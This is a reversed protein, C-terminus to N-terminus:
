PRLALCTVATVLKGCTVHRNKRLFDQQLVFNQGQLMNCPIQADIFSLIVGFKLTADHASSKCVTGAVVYFLVLMLKSYMRMCGAFNVLNKIVPWILCYIFFVFLAELGLFLLPASKLCSCAFLHFYPNKFHQLDSVIGAVHTRHTCVFLCKGEERGRLM